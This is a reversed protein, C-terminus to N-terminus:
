GIQLDTFHTLFWHGNYLAAVSPPPNLVFFLRGVLVAGILVWVGIDIVIEPAQKAKTVRVQTFVVGALLAALLILGFFSLLVPGFQIGSATFQMRRNVM